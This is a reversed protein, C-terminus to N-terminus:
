PRSHHVVEVSNGDPDAVAAAYARGEDTLRVASSELSRGGADLGARHFADVTADDAVAFAMHAHETRRGGAVLSFSGGAGAFQVRDPEDDRLEFGAHGAVAAYFARAAVVDAVRIWLHDIVGGKRLHGHHVAEASNGDPDLLFGGYYDPGYQSRPGPPGDDTYGSATGTRWFEDVRARSPAVFGVHLGRTAPHREDAQRVAFEAWRADRADTSTEEVGLTRLLLGYFRESADRDTARITVRDFVGHSHGRADRLLRSGSRRREPAVVGLRDTVCTSAAPRNV